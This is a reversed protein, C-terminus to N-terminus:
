YIEDENFEDGEDDYNWEKERRRSDFHNTDGEMEIESTTCLSEKENLRIILVSPAFYKKKM